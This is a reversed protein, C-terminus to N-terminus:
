NSVALPPTIVTSSTIDLVNAEVLDKASASDIVTGYVVGIKPVKRPDMQQQRMGGHGGGRQGIALSTILIMSIIIIKRM